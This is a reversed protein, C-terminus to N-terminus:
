KEHKEGRLYTVLLYIPTILLIVTINTFLSLMSTPTNFSHFKIFELLLTIVLPIISVLCITLVKHVKFEKLVIGLYVVLAVYSLIHMVFFLILQHTEYENIQKVHQPMVTVVFSFMYTSEEIDSIRISVTSTGPTKAVVNNGIIEVVDNNSFTYDIKSSTANDDIIFSLEQYEGVFMTNNELTSIVYKPVIDKVTIEITYNLDENEFNIVSVTTTGAQLPFLQYMYNVYSIDLVEPNSSTVIYNDTDSQSNTSVSLYANQYVNLVNKSLDIETLSNGNKLFTKVQMQTALDLKLYTQTVTIEKEKTVTNIGDSVTVTVIASGEELGLVEGGKGVVLINEDSSYYTVQYKNTLSTITTNIKTSEGVNIKSYSKISLDLTPNTVNFHYQENQYYVDFFKIYLDAEGQEIFEATITCKNKTIKSTVKLVNEDTSYIMYDSPTVFYPSILLEIVIKDSIKLENTNLNDLIYNTDNLTCKTITLHNVKDEKSVSSSVNVDFTKTIEENYKYTITVKSSGEKLPILYSEDILLVDTNSSSIIFDHHNIVEEISIIDFKVIEEKALSCTNENLEIGSVNISTLNKKRVEVDLSIQVNQDYASSIVIKTLGIRDVSFTAVHADQQLLTVNDSTSSFVVSGFDRSNGGANIIIRDNEYVVLKNNELEVMQNNLFVANINVSTPKTVTYKKTYVNINLNDTLNLEPYTVKITTQGVGKAYVYGEKVTCVEENNSEWVLKTTDVLGGTYIDLKLMEGYIIDVSNGYVERFSLRNNKDVVKVKIYDYINPDYKYTTKIICEGFSNTTILGTSSVSAISPNSSIWTYNYTSVVRDSLNCSLTLQKSEGFHILLANNTKEKIKVEELTNPVTINVKEEKEFYINILEKNRSVALCDIGLFIITISLIIISLIKNNKKKM